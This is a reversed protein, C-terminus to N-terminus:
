ESKARKMCGAAADRLQKATSDPLTEPHWTTKDADIGYLTQLIALAAVFAGPESAHNGDSWLDLRTKNYVCLFVSGVPLVPLGTLIATEATRADWEQMSAPRGPGFSDPQRNPDRPWTQFIYTRVGKAQMVLTRAARATDDSFFVLEQSQPQVIVADYTNEDVLGAVNSHEVHWALTKGASLRAEFELPPSGAPVLQQVMSPVSHVYMHSNGVFLVKKTGDKGSIGEGWIPVYDGRVQRFSLAGVLGVAAIAIAVRVPTIPPKSSM